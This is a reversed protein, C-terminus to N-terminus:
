MIPGQHLVQNSWFSSVAFGRKASYCKAELRQVRKAWVNSMLDDFGTM